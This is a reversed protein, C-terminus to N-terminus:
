VESTDKFASYKSTEFSICIYLDLISYKIPISRQNFVKLQFASLGRAVSQSDFSSLYLYALRQNCNKM